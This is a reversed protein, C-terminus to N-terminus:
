DTAETSSPQMNFEYQLFIPRPQKPAKLCYDEVM